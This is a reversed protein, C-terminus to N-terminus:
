EIMVCKGRGNFNEREESDRDGFIGHIRKPEAHTERERGRHLGNMKTQVNHRQRVDFSGKSAKDLFMREAEM